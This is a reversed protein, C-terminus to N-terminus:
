TLEALSANWLALVPEEPNAHECALISVTATGLLLRAGAGAPLGIWRAALVRLFHGHSFLAIGDRGELGHEGSAARAASAATAARLRSLVEDARRSVDEVSEGGPCGDAFLNWGPRRSQIQPTTIGEYEGYDWESLAADVKVRDPAFGAAECTQRARARPSCWIEGPSAGGLWQGIRRAQEVGAPTLPVDTSSTHRGFRSWETEGHRVLYIRPTM